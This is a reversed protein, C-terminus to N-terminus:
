ASRRRLPASPGTAADPAARDGAEDWDQQEAAIATGALARLREVDTEPPEVLMRLPVGYLEALRQLQELSPSRYGKEWAVISSGSRPSMGLAKAVSNQDMGAEDRALRLWRGRRWRLAALTDDTMAVSVLGRLM